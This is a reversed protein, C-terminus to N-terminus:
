GRGDALVQGDQGGGVEDVAGAVSAVDVVALAGEAGSEVGSLVVWGWMGSSAWCGPANAGNSDQWIVEAARSGRMHRGPGVRDSRAVIVASGVVTGGGSPPCVRDAIWAM